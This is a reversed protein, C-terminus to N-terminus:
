RHPLSCSSLHRADRAFADDLSRNSDRLDRNPTRGLGCQLHREQRGARLPCEGRRGAPVDLAHVEPTRGPAGDSPGRRVHRRCPPGCRHHYRRDRGPRVMQAGAGQPWPDRNAGRRRREDGGLRLVSREGVALTPGPRRGTLQAGLVYATAVLVAIGIGVFARRAFARRRWAASPIPGGTQSGAAAIWTLEHMVDRAGQWREAPDKALCRTVAHELAPPTLPQLERIPRPERDMIAAILSARSAAEFARRGTATEYLVCGLAWIDSRADAEKGELQEPAMYQFTGVITGEATLPRSLTPSESEAGTVSVHGSARALGFDMLKAGSKTLMINGPKLDRHVVGARHARDLAEAIQAGVTLAETLPLPGNWLRDALTEGELFEMVLYETDNERGIDYLACIHPHSLQSITRAEREFRARSEATTALRPSLVKIAVNRGLRTDHARYVEGMGGAGLLALIEYPGLHTGITLAM